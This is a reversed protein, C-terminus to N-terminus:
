EEKQRLTAEIQAVRLNADVGIKDKQIQIKEQELRL